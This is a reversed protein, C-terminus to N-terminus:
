KKKSEELKARFVKLQRLILGSHPDLEAARTQQKVANEYDGQHFYVHALTDYHGGTRPSLEVAKKAYKLALHMDGETNGILWAYDNYNKPDNPEENIKEQSDAAAKKIMEGIKQRQPAALDPLQCLGILADIDPPDGEVAKWLNEEEQASDNRSKFHCAYFYHRRGSLEALSRVTSDDGPKQHKKLEALLDDLLKAAELDNEQDHFMEALFLYATQV